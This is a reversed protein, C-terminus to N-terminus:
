IVLWSLVHIMYTMMEVMTNRFSLTAGPIDHHETIFGWCVEHCELSSTSWKHFSKRYISNVRHGAERKVFQVLMEICLVIWFCWRTTRNFETAFSAVGWCVVSSQHQFACQEPTEPLRHLWDTNFFYSLSAHYAPSESTLLCKMVLWNLYSTTSFLSLPFFLKSWFQYKM